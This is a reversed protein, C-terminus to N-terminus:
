VPWILADDFRRRCASFYVNVSAWALKRVTILEDLFLQVELCTLSELSRKYFAWLQEMAHIYAEITKAALGRLRMELLVAERLASMVSEERWLWAAWGCARRM